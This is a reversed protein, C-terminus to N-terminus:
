LPFGCADIAACVREEGDLECFDESSFELPAESAAGCACDFGGNVNSTCYVAYDTDGFINAQCLGGSNAVSWTGPELGCEGDSGCSGTLGLCLLLFVFVKM